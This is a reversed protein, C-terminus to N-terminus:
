VTIRDSRNKRTVCLAYPYALPSRWGRTIMVRTNRLTSRSRTVAGIYGYKGVKSYFLFFCTAHSLIRPPCNTAFPPSRQLSLSVSGVVKNSQSVASSRARVARARSDPHRPEGAAGRSYGLSFPLVCPLVCVSSDCRAGATVAATSRAHSGGRDTSHRTVSRVV